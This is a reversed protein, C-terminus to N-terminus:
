PDEADVAVGAGIDFDFDRFARNQVLQLIVFVILSLCSVQAWDFPVLSKRALNPDRRM